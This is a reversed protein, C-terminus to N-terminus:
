KSGASWRMGWGFAKDMDSHGKFFEVKRNVKVSGGVNQVDDRANIGVADAAIEGGLNRVNQANM